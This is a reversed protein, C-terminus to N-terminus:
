SKLLDLLVTVNHIEIINLETGNFTELITIEDDGHVINYGM